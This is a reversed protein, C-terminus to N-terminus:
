QAMILRHLDRREGAGETRLDVPHIEPIKRVPALHLLCEKIKGDQDEAVLLELGRVEHLDSRAEALGAVVGEDGAHVAEREDELHHLLRFLLLVEAAGPM